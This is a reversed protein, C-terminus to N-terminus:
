AAVRGDGRLAVGALTLSGLMGGIGVAAFWWPAPQALYVGGFWAMLIVGGGVVAIAGAATM